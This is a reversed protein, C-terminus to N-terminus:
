QEEKKPEMGVHRSGHCRLSCSSSQPSSREPVQKQVFDLYQRQECRVASRDRPATHAGTWQWNNNLESLQSLTAAISNKAHTLTKTTKKTLKFNSFSFLAGTPSKVDTLSGTM